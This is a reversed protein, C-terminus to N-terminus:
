NYVRTKSVCLKLNAPLIKVIGLAICTVMLSSGGYSLFLLPIGTVPLLGLNIGINATTQSFFLFFVGGTIYVALDDRAYKM